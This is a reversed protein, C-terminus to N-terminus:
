NLLVFERLTGSAHFKVGNQGCTLEGSPLSTQGQKTQSPTTNKM